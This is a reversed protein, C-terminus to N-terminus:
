PARLRVHWATVVQVADQDDAGPRDDDALGALEIVGAGLGAFRQAGVTVFHDQDVGIRRGDHGVGVQGVLSIDLRETDLEGFFHDAALTRVCQERGDSALGPQIKGDRQRLRSHQLAVSYLQDTGLDVGDLLSFIAQEEFVRHALDAEIRRLRLEAVAYFFTQLEGRTDTIRDDQPRTEGQASGAAPDGVIALLQFLNQLAAQIKRGDVFHQDLLAHKAPLFELEFHHAILGVIADDDAGDLIEIRHAHMGAVRNRDRGGLGEGIAFVLHHAVGREGTQALNADIGTARVHLERNVGGGAM